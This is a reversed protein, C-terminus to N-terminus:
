RRDPPAPISVTLPGRYLPIGAAAADRLVADRYRDVPVLPEGPISYGYPELRPGVDFAPRGLALAISSLIALSARLDLHLHPGTSHGTNGSEALVDGRAVRQGLQVLPRSLHLYRSVIDSPHRIGVWRGADSREDHQVRVVEGADIALIPTGQPLPIDLGRHLGHPRPRSWGSSVIAVVDVPVPKRFDLVEITSGNGSLVSVPASMTAAAPSPPVPAAARARRTTALWVGTGAAAGVLIAAPKRM